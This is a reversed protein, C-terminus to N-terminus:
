VGNLHEQEIRLMLRQCEEYRESTQFEEFLGMRTVEDELADYVDEWYNRQTVPGFKVNGLCHIEKVLNFTDKVIVITNIHKTSNRYCKGHEYHTNPDVVQLLAKHKHSECACLRRVVNDEFSEFTYAAPINCFLGIECAM